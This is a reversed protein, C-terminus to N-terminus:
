CASGPGTSTPTGRSSSWRSSARPSRCSRPGSRSSGCCWSTCSPGSAPSWRRWASCGSRTGGAGPDGREAGHHRLRGPAQGPVAPPLRHDTDYPVDAAYPLCTVQGPELGAGQHRRGRGSPRLHRHQGPRRGVGAAAGASTLTLELATYRTVSLPLEPPLLDRCADYPVLSLIMGDLQVRDLLAKVKPRIEREQDYVVLELQVGTLLGSAEVLRDRHASHLVLGLVMRM